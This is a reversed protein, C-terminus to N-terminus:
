HAPARGKLADRRADAALRRKEVWILFPSAIYMTSYTGALVGVLIAFAFGEIANGRGYNVLLLVTIMFITTVGTLLTRALTENISTNVIEEFSGKMRPLNERIRDYIVITDNLSYGVITLLAAILNLDIEADIIGLSAFLAVAGITILVDHFLALVAGFAYRYEHFRARIYLTIAFLSVLLALVAADRLDTSAQASIQSADGFPSAVALRRQGKEEMRNLQTAIADQMRSLTLTTPGDPRFRYATDSTAEVRAAESFALGAGRLMDEVAKVADGGTPKEVLNLTVEEALLLHASEGRAIEEALAERLEAPDDLWLSRADNLRWRLGSADGEVQTLKAPDFRLGIAKLAPLLEDKTAAKGRLALNFSCRRDTGRFSANTASIQGFAGGGIAPMRELRAGEAALETALAGADAIYRSYANEVSFRSASSSPEVEKGESKLHEPVLGARRLLQRVLEVDVAKSFSLEFSVHVQDLALDSIGRDSILFDAALQDGLLVRIQSELGQIGLEYRPLLARRVLNIDGHERLREFMLRTNRLVVTRESPDTPELQVQPKTVIGSTGEAGSLKPTGKEIDGSSTTHFNAKVFRGAEENARRVARADDAEVEMWPQTPFSVFGQRFLRERIDELDSEVVPHAFRLVLDIPEFRRDDRLGAGKAAARDGVGEARRSIGPRSAIDQQLGRNDEPDLKVKIGYVRKSDGLTSVQVSEFIQEMKERVDAIEMDEKLAVRFTGGGTFDIGLLERGKVTVVVLGLLIAILSGAVCQGMYKTFNYHTKPVWSRMEFERFNPKQLLFHILIKTVVLAAFMTTLIGIALVVAFGRVPGTGLWMLVVSTILTTLNSDFITLFARDFGNKASQLLTRQKAREERIREYILINADLAMGVTLILGAIGPLNLNVRFLAMAGLLLLMNAGLSWAAVIGVRKYYYTMFWIVLALGILASISGLRIAEEGLTPGMLDRTMLELPIKLSGSRLVNQLHKVEASSFNGTIIGQGPLRGKITPPQGSIYDNLLIAMPRETFAETFDAFADGRSAQCIFRVCPYGNQDQDPFTQYLDEGTFVWNKGTTLQREDRLLAVDLWEGHVIPTAGPSRRLRLPVPNQEGISIPAPALRENGVVRNHIVVSGDSLREAWEKKGAKYFAELFLTRGDMERTEAPNQLGAWFFGTPPGGASEPLANYRRIAYEDVYVDGGRALEASWWDNLKKKAADVDVDEGKREGGSGAGKYAVIRFELKGLETILREIAGAEAPSMGPLEILIRDTGQRQLTISLVGTPDIRNRIIGITEDILTALDRQMSDDTGQQANLRETDVQYVLRTGGQLDLGLKIPFEGAIPPILLALLSLGLLTLVLIVKRGINPVM